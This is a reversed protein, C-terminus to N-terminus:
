SAQAAPLQGTHSPRTINSHDQGQREALADGKKMGKGVEGHGSCRLGFAGSRVASPTAIPTVPGPDHTAQRVVALRGNRVVDSRHKFLFYDSKKKVNVRPTTGELRRAVALPRQQWYPSIGM